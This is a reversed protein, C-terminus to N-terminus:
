KHDSKQDLSNIFIQYASQKDAITARVGVGKAKRWFETLLESKKNDSEMERPNAVENAEFWKRLYDALGEANFVPNDNLEQIVDEPRIYRREGDMM